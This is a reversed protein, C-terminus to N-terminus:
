IDLVPNFHTENEPGTKKDIKVHCPKVSGCAYIYWSFSCVLCSIPFWIRKESRFPDNKQYTYMSEIERKRSGTELM